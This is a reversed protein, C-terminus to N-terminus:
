CGSVVSVSKARYLIIAQALFTLSQTGLAQLSRLDRWGGIDKRCDTVFHLWM